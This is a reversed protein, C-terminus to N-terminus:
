LKIRVQFNVNTKQDGNIEELGSGIKDVNYYQTRAFKIWITLNKSINYKGLLYYRVGKNYFSPVSYV